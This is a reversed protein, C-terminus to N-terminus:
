KLRFTGQGSLFGKNFVEVSYDGESLTVPTDWTICVESVDNNFQHEAVKTYRVKEKTLTNTLVGSGMEEVALTEGLPNIIRVYFEETGIPTVDNTTTQFCINLLDVNKAYKKRVTKGNDKMRLGTVNVGGVKVVSAMTVTSALAAREEMLVEKESMLEARATTLEENAMTAQAVTQQLGENAQNLSVNQEVLLGNQERLDNIEAVYTATQEKLSALEKRVKSLNRKDRMLVDIRKKSDILQAKQSDILANAEENDGRMEELENLSEYYQKEVDRKLSNTEDLQSSMEDRQTMVESRDYALWGTVGLTGVLLVILFPLLRSAGSSNSM